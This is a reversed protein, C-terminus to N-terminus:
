FRFTQAAALAADVFPGLAVVGVVMLLASSTIVLAPGFRVPQFPDRADDFFMIKVIRLYYYAGVVSALVGIVALPYLGANIAALFVYYKGFFGVLPPIGALSFMLVMLGFAMPLNSRALGALEGIEEVAVDNRRMSLICAFTGLTMVVYIAMYVIVSQAGEVSNAALGVLAFGINAISSYAMLRKINTQGIAAFAGLLMSAIAIFTVIQQWQVAIGPFADFAVRVLLAMAAVKPASAFFATVPTASGEYVDPTWMHFPVASVKFALGVMLFVLGFILWLNSAVEPGRAANAIVQFDTSGAFGYLLSSGYLLMGSSLAGLVFYKLGAESARVSDRRYAAVVYLALSQLELGVYLAILDRASIMVLMGTTALLVLIPYEFKMINLDRFDDFALMLAIASGGLVLVKMFRAFADNVFAGDFLSQSGESYVLMAAGAVVLLIIALWGVKIAESQTEPRFVGYMLLVMAGVALILEPLLPAYVALSEPM